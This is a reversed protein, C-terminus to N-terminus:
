PLPDTITLEQGGQFITVGSPAWGSLLKRNVFSDAQPHPLEWLYTLVNRETLIQQDGDNTVIPPARAIGAEAWSCPM